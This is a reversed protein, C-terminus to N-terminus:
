SRQGRRGGGAAKRGTRRGRARARRPPGTRRHGPRLTGGRGGRPPAGPGPSREHAGRRRPLSPRDRGRASAGLGKAALIAEAALPAPSAQESDFLTVAAAAIEDRAAKEYPVYDGEVLRFMDLRFEADRQNCSVYAFWGQPFPKDIKFTVHLETWKDKTVTQPPSAPPGTTRTPAVSSKWGCPSRGRSARPWCRLPTPRERAGPSGDDPRVPRGLRRRAGIRILASRQGAAAEKEDVTFQAATKGSCGLYWQDRGNEFSPNGFLNEAANTAPVAWAAFDGAPPLLSCFDDQIFM